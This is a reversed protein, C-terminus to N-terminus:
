AQHTHAAPDLALAFAVIDHDMEDGLLQLVERGLEIRDGREVRQVQGVAAAILDAGIRAIAPQLDRFGIGRAMARAFTRGGLRPVIAAADDEVPRLDLDGRAIEM